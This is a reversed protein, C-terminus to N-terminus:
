LLLGEKRLGKFGDLTVELDYTGPQVFSFQYSGTENTTSSRAIGTNKNVLSVTAGPVSARTTDFVVGSLNAENTQARAPALGGTGVVMLIGLISALSLCRWLSNGGTM